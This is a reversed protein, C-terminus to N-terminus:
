SRMKTYLIYKGYRNMFPSVGTSCSKFAYQLVFVKLVNVQIIRLGRLGECLDVCYSGKKESSSNRLARFVQIIDKGLQDTVIGYKQNKSLPWLSGDKAPLTSHSFSTKRDPSAKGKLVFMERIFRTISWTPDRRIELKSYFRDM